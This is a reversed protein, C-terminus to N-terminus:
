GIDGFTEGTSMKEIPTSRHSIQVPAPPPASNLLRMALPTQTCAAHGASGAGWATPSCARRPAKSVQTPAHPLRCVAGVLQWAENSHAPSRGRRPSMRSGRTGSSHGCTRVTDVVAQAGM